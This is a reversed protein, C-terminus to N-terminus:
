VKFRSVVSDLRVALEQLRRADAVVEGVATTNVENMASVQEVNRAIFESAESQSELAESIERVAEVVQRTAENIRGMGEGATVAKDVSANVLVAGEEIGGIAASTSRQIETIMDTIERTSTATREALKRVEDAVVAFGRGAEGARAAEIAANLALLNTQDAIDKIVEVIATIQKSGEDMREVLGASRNVSAASSQMDQVTESVAASGQAALEGADRALGSATGASDSVQRISVTIEELTAAISSTADHQQSVGDSVKDSMTVLNRSASSLAASGEHISSVMGRLGEQMRQMASMMSREDREATKIPVTLDGAAIRLAADAAAEPEGGLPALVMKRLMVNIMVILLLCAVAGGAMIWIMRNRAIRDVEDISYVGVVSFGWTPFGARTVGWKHGDALYDVVQDDTVHGSRFRIKDKSDIVAVFGNDLIRSGEVVKQVPEMDVKYGVYWAGIVQGRGNRIPEYGTLYPTGLIDVQGYFAKGEKLAAYAKGTPDLVTGIARENERKVNTSVRVFDDSARVFLTATGGVIATVSDVLAVNNAQGNGGLELDPVQRDKVAVTEGLAAVGYSEGRQMLLRMAGHVQEMVLSDSVNLLQVVAQTRQDVEAGVEDSTRGREFSSFVIAGGLVLAIVFLSVPVIFRTQLSANRM